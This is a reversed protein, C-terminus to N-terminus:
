VWLYFPGVQTMFVANFTESMLFICVTEKFFILWLSSSFGFAAEKQSTLNWGPCTKLIYFSPLIAQVLYSINKPLMLGSQM